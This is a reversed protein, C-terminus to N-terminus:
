LHWSTFQVVLM